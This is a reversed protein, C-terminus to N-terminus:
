QGIKGWCSVTKNVAIACTHDKKASLSRYPATPALTQDYKNDGWCIVTEDQRIGCAHNDGTAIDVFQGSPIDARRYGEFYDSYWCTLTKDAAVIGCAHYRSVALKLYRKNPLNLLRSDYNGGWCSARKDLDIACVENDGAAITSYDGKPSLTQGYNNEGWCSLSKDLKIGCTFNKGATLTRYQGIPAKTQGKRNDGFCVVSRDTRLACSHSEGTAINIYQGPPVNTQGYQNSGWCNVVKNKISCDHFYGTSILDVTGVDPNLDSEKDILSSLASFVLFPGAILLVLQAVSELTIKNNFIQWTPRSRNKDSESSRRM